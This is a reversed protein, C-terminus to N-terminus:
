QPNRRLKRVSERLEDASLARFARDVIVGEEDLFFTAPLNAVRYAVAVAGRADRLIPYDAGVQRAFAGAVEPPEGVNIGVFLVEPFDRAAEAMASMERRCPPCYSAWFNLVVARGRLASLAIPTGDLDPLTFDPARRGVDAGVEPVEAAEAGKLSVVRDLEPAVPVFPGEPGPGAPLPPPVPVAVAPGLALDATAWAWAMAGLGLSLGLGLVIGKARQPRSPTANANSSTNTSM